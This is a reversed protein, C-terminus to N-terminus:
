SLQIVGPVVTQRRGHFCRATAIALSSETLWRITALAPPVCSSRIAVADLIGRDLVDGDLSERCLIEKEHRGGFCAAPHRAIDSHSTQLAIACPGVAHVYMATM